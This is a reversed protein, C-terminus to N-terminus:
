KECVRRFWAEFLKADVNGHYDEKEVGTEEPVDVSAALTDLEDDDFGGTPDKQKRGKGKGKGKGKGAYKSGWWKPEDLVCEGKLKNDVKYLIGAGIINM